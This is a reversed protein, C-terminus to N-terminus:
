AFNYVKNEVILDVLEGYDIRKVSSPIVNQLGRKEVDESLAYVEAGSLGSADLFVGDQILVVKAEEDLAALKLGSQGYLKDVLYLAM